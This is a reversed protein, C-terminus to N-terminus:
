ASSALHSVGVNQRGKFELTRAVESAVLIFLAPGEKDVISLTHVESKAFLMRPSM